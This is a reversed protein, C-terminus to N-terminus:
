GYTSIDIPVWLSLTLLEAKRPQPHMSYNRAQMTCLDNGFCATGMFSTIHLEDPCLFEPGKGIKINSCSSEGYIFVLTLINCNKM